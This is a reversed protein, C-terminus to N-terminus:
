TMPSITSFSSFTIRSHFGLNRDQNGAATGIQLREDIGLGSSLQAAAFNGQHYGVAPLGKGQLPRFLHPDRGSDQQFFLQSSLLAKFLGQQFGQLFVLDLDDDQRAKHANQGSVKRVSVGPTDEIHVWGEDGGEASLAEVAQPDMLRGKLFPYLDRPSGDVKDILNGVAPLDDGLLRHLDERPIRRLYQLAPDHLLCFPQQKGPRRFLDTRGNM